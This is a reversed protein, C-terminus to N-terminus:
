MIADGLQTMIWVKWPGDEIMMISNIRSPKADTVLLEQNSFDQRMVSSNELDVAGRMEM